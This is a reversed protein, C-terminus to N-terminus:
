KELTELEIDIDSRAKLMRLSQVEAVPLARMEGGASGGDGEVDVLEDGMVASLDEKVVVRVSAIQWNTWGVPWRADVFRVLDSVIIAGQPHYVDMEQNDLVLRTLKPVLEFDGKASQDLGDGGPRRALRGLLNGADECARMSLDLHLARLEPFVELVLVVDRPSMDSINLALGHVDCGSRKILSQLASPLFMDYTLLDGDLNKRGHKSDGDKSNFSETKYAFTRLFPLALGDLFKGLGTQEDASYLAEGNGSDSCISIDTLYPLTLPVAPPGEDEGSSQEDEDSSQEEESDPDEQTETDFLRCSVVELVPFLALFKIWAAVRLQVYPLRLSTIIEYDLGANQLSYTTWSGEPDFREMSFSTLRPAYQLIRRDEGVIGESLDEFYQHAGVSNSLGGDEGVDVHLTELLPTKVGPFLPFVDHGTPGDVQFVYQEVYMDICAWKMRPLQDRFLPAALLDICAYQLGNISFTLPRNGSRAFFSAYYDDSQKFKYVDEVDVFIFSHLIQSTCAVERWRRCVLSLLSPYDRVGARKLYRVVQKVSGPTPESLSPPASSVFIMELIENPMEHICCWSPPWFRHIITNSSM